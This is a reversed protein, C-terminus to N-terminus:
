SIRLSSLIYTRVTVRLQLLFYFHLCFAQIVRINLKYDKIREINLHKTEVTSIQMISNLVIAAFKFRCKQQLLLEDNNMILM